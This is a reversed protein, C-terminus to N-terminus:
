TNSGIGGQLPHSTLAEEDTLSHDEFEKTNFPILTALPQSLFSQGTRTARWLITIYM